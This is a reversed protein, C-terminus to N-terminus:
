QPTTRWWPPGNPRHATVPVALPVPENDGLVTVHRNVQANVLAALLAAVMLLVTFTEAAVEANTDEHLEEADMARLYLRWAVMVASPNERMAYRALLLLRLASSTRLTPMGDPQRGAGLDAAVERRNEEMVLQVVSLQERVRDLAPQVREMGHVVPLEVTATV